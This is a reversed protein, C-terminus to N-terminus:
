PSILSIRPMESSKWEILNIKSLRSTFYKKFMCRIYTWLLIIRDPLVNFRKPYVPELYQYSIFYLFYYCLLRSINTLGLKQHTCTWIPFRELKPISKSQMPTLFKYKLFNKEIANWSIINNPNLPLFGYYYSLTPLQIFNIIGILVLFHGPLLTEKCLHWLLLFSFFSSSFFFFRSWCKTQIPQIVNQGRQLFILLLM